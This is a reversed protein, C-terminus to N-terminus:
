KGQLTKKPPKARMLIEEVDSYIPIQKKDIPIKFRWFKKYVTETNYSTIVKRVCKVFVFGLEELHRFDDKTMSAYLLWLLRHDKSIALDAGGGDVFKQILDNM